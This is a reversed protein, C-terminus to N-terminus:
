EAKVVKYGLGRVTVIQFDKCEKFRERLRNIHVDITREDTDTDMGWIEDMLQQRTFIKDAYSLLKYLLLFEKQPLLISENNCTITFSEYDLTITPLVIKKENAIKARRLLAQIRLLLENVNVPKIMYDDIGILFGKEMVDFSDKVTAMLIPSQYGTQRLMSVLEYGDMDPMMIDSLILDIHFEAIKDLAELGNAASIVQYGQRLLVTTYLKNLKLDDEVVLITIM